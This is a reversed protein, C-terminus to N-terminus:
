PARLRDVLADAQALTVPMSIDSVPVVRTGGALFVVQDRLCCCLDPHREVIAAQDRRAQEARADLAPIIREEYTRRLRRGIARGIFRTATELVVDAIEQDLDESRSTRDARPRGGRFPDPEQDRWAQQMAADQMGNLMEFLQQV